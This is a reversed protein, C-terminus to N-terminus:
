IHILSLMLDCVTRIRRLGIGMGQGAGKSTYITEFLKKKVEKNIGYGNDIIEFRVFKDNIRRINLKIIKEGVNRILAQHANNLYIVLIEKLMSQDGFILPLNAEINEGYVAGPHEKNIGNKIPAFSKIMEDISINEYVIQGRSFEKVSQIIDSIHTVTEETSEIREKLLKKLQPSASDDEKLIEEFFDLDLKISNLPTAIQHSMTSVMTDLNSRRAQAGENELRENEAQTFLANEINIAADNGLISLVDLLDSQYVEKKGRNGLVIFGLLKNERLAPVIVRASLLDMQDKIEKIAGNEGKQNELIHNIEDYLVPYNKEKLRQVLPNEENVVATNVNHPESIKISYRNEGNEFLYLAVYDLNLNEALDNIILKFLKQVDRIASWGITAKKLLDQRRREEKLIREETRRQLYIFIFPGVTALITSLFVPIWYWSQGFTNILWDKGRLLLGFPLGLVLSYVFIFVGLRSVALRIDMLQYRFIAYTCVAAYVSVLVHWAPYINVGWTTVATSAGSLFGLLMGYFLYRGQALRLGQSMKIYKFLEVFAKIVIPIWILFLLNWWFGAIPLYFQDFVFRLSNVVWNTSIALTSFILGHICVFFRARKNSLHCFESVVLFFFMAISGVGFYAIRWFLFAQDYNKTIGVLFMGLGYTGVALNFSAWYKHLNQRGFTLILLALLYCAICLLLSTLAFLSM